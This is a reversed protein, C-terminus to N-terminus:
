KNINFIKMLESLEKDKEEKNSKKNKNSKSSKKNFLTKNKGKTNANVFGLQFAIAVMEYHDQLDDQHQESLLGIEHVTLDGLSSTPLKLKGVVLKFIADYDIFGDSKVPLM